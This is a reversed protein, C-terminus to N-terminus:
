WRLASYPTTTTTLMYLNLEQHRQLNSLYELIMTDLSRQGHKQWNVLMTVTMTTHRRIVNYVKNLARTSVKSSATFVPSPGASGIPSRVSSIPVSAPNASESITFGGSWPIQTEEYVM